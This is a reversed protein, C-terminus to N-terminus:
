GKFSGVMIGKVFYKQLFPYSLLIPVTAVMTTAAKISEPNSPKFDNLISTNTMDVIDQSGELVVRRLVMQLVQKNLDTIYIMCDFWANWHAVMQWLVVTAIIPKSIPIILRFLIVFDNAGDIRGSEELSEPISMFFNRMIIMNYTPILGPLILAWVTDMLGLNKILLYSPILGGSFFMTFVILMTWITRHPFYKKSLPYATFLMVLLQLSTGLVTRIITNYFGSWIDKAQFVRQYNSFSVEKPIIGIQIASAGDVSVLSLSLIYLFPYLTTFCLVAMLIYNIVNFVSDGVSLRIKNHSAKM